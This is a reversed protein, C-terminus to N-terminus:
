EDDNYFRNYSHSTRLIENKKLKIDNINNIIDILKINNINNLEIYSVKSELKNVRNEYNKYFDNYLIFNDLQVLIVIFMIIVNYLEM